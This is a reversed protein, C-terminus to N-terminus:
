TTRSGGGLPPAPNFYVQNLYVTNSPLLLPDKIVFSALSVNHAQRMYFSYLSLALLTSNFYQLVAM